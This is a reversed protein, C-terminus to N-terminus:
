KNQTRLVLFAYGLLIFYALFYFWLLIVILSGLSGYILNYNTFHTFFYRLGFTGLSLLATALLSALLIDKKRTKIPVGLAYLSYIGVIVIIGFLLRNAWLTLLPPLAIYRSLWTFFNRGLVPVAIGLVILLVFWVLLLFTIGWEQMFKKKILGKEGVLHFASILTKIARSASYLVSLFTLSLIDPRKVEFIGKVINIVYSHSKKPFFKLIHEFLLESLTEGVPLFALLSILLMLFPVLSIFAYFAVAAASIEIKLTSVKELTGRLQIYIRRLEM